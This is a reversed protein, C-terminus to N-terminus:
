KGLLCLYKSSNLHQHDGLIVHTKSMCIVESEGYMQAVDLVFLGRSYIKTTTMGFSPKSPM